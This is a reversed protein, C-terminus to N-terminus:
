GPGGDVDVRVFGSLLNNGVSGVPESSPRALVLDTPKMEEDARM